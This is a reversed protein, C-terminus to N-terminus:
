KIVLYENDTILLFLKKNSNILNNNIIFEQIDQTENILYKNKFFIAAIFINSFFLILILLLSFM